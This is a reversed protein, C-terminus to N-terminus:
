VGVLLSFLTTYEFLTIDRSPLGYEKALQNYLEVDEVLSASIDQIAIAEVALDKAALALVAKTREETLLNWFVVGLETCKAKIDVDVEFRTMGPYNIRYYEYVSDISKWAVHALFEKMDM